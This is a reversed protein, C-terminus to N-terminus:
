RRQFDAANGSTGPQELHHLLNPLDVGLPLAERRSVTEAAFRRARRFQRRIRRQFQIADNGHWMILPYNRSKVPIFYQAYGHDGHFTEGRDLKTVTGGFYLSGMTKLTIPKEMNNVGTCGALLTGGLTCGAFILKKYRDM